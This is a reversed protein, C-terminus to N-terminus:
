DPECGNVAERVWESFIHMTTETRAPLHSNRPWLLAVEPARTELHPLIRILKKEKLATAVIFNLSQVIGVGAIALQVRGEADSIAAVPDPCLPNLTGGQEFEWGLREGPVPLLFDILRHQKLEGVTQPVGNQQLYDPSAVNIRYPFGLSRKRLDQDELGGIRIAFDIEERVFDSRQDTLIIEPHIDPYQRMFEPLRPLIVSRALSVNISIRVKGRMVTQAGKLDDEVDDLEQLLRKCTRYYRMGAETTAVARTTRGLLKTGVHEELRAIRATANSPSIGSLSAARSFSITEVIRIFLRLSTLQDFRM